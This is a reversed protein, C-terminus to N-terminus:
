LTSGATNEPNRNDSVNRPASTAVAPLLVRPRPSAIPHLRSSASSRSTNWIERSECPLWSPSFWARARPAGKMPSSSSAFIDFDLASLSTGADDVLADHHLNLTSSPTAGPASANSALTTPWGKTRYDYWRVSRVITSAYTCVCVCMQNSYAYLLSLM